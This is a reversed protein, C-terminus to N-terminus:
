EEVRNWIDLYMKWNSDVKKWVVVYKGKWSVVSGNDNQSKGEFYGYDYAFDEAFTIEESIIKHDLVKYGNRSAWRKKIAERGKIINANNPFIKGDKTYANAIADYDENVYAQSFAKSNSLIKEKEEEPNFTLQKKCNIKWTPYVVSEDKSVWEGIWKYGSDTIDYFTLRYFGEMGNPATQDRYLVIKGDEKKSGEWTPLKSNAFKSAYYHVYWKSSDANFQRISGSHAGDIKLTEDQIGMGNMIYKFTWTMDIPEIWSGDQNRTESKCNCKGIMPQFDMIQQPAEPNPKGFPFETSPEFDYQAFATFSIFFLIYLHKM